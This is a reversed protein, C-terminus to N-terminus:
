RAIKRKTVMGLLVGEERRGARCRTDDRRTAAPAAREFPAVAGVPWSM